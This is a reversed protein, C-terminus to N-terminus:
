PCSTFVCFLHISTSALHCIGLIKGVIEKKFPNGTQFHFFTYILLVLHVRFIPHITYIHAHIHICIQTYSYCYYGFFPDHNQSSTFIPRPWSSIIYVCHEYIFNEFFLFNLNFFPFCVPLSLKSSQTGVIPDLDGQLPSPFHKLNIFIHHWRGRDGLALHWCRCPGSYAAFPLQSRDSKAEPNHSVTHHYPCLMVWKRGIFLSRDQASHREWVRPARGSVWPGSPPPWGVFLTQWRVCM